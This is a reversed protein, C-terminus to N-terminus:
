DSVISKVLPITIPKKGSLSMYDLKDALEKVSKFSREIRPVIFNIVEQPVFLQKDSFIKMLMIAMLNEDPSTITVATAAMLRSKLDPLMFEYDKVPTQSTIFISGNNEKLSNYIHFLMKEKEINGVINALGDLAVASSRQEIFLESSKEMTEDTAIEQANTKNKWVKLLHTKGSAIPGMVVLAPSHWEPWKDIWAVAESNSPSVWFDEREYATGTNSLDLPIQESSAM